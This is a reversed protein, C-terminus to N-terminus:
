CKSRAYVYLKEAIWKVNFSNKVCLGNKM